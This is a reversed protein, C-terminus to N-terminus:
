MKMAIAVRRIWVDIRSSHHELDYYICIHFGDGLYHEYAYQTALPLCPEFGVNPDAALEEFAKGLEERLKEDLKKGKDILYDEVDPDAHLSVKESAL